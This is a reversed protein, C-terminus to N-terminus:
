TEAAMWGRARIPSSSRGTITKALSFAQIKWPCFHWTFHSKLGCNALYILSKAATKFVTSKRTGAVCLACSTCFGSMLIRLCHRLDLGFINSAFACALPINSANCTVYGISYGISIDRITYGIVNSMDYWIGHVIVHSIAQVIALCFVYSIVHCIVSCSTMLGIGLLIIM